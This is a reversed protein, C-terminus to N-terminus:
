MGISPIVLAIADALRIPLVPKGVFAVPDLVQLGKCRAETLNGSVFICGVNLEDRLWRAVDEGSDGGKLRLDMLVVDPVNARAATQCSKMDVAMGVVFHGCDKIQQELDLAILIEDEVILVNLAAKRSTSLINVPNPV